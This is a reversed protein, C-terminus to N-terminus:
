PFEIPVSAVHCCILLLSEAPFVAASSSEHRLLSLSLSLSSSSFFSSFSSSSSSTLLPPPPPPPPSPPSSSTLSSVCRACKKLTPTRASDLSSWRSCSRHRRLSRWWIQRRLAAHVSVTLVSESVVRLPVPVVFTSIRSKRFRDWTSRICCERLCVCVSLFSVLVLVFVSSLCIQTSM